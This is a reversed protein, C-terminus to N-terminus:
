PRIREMPYITTRPRRQSDTSRLKATWSDPSERTWTFGNSTDRTSAFDVARALSDAGGEGETRCAVGLLLVLTMAAENECFHRVKSLFLRNRM